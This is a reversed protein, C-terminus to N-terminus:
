GGSRRQSRVRESSRTRLVASQLITDKNNFCEIGQDHEPRTWCTSRTRETAELVLINQKYHNSDRNELTIEQALGELEHRGLGMENSSCQLVLLLPQSHPSCSSPPKSCPPSPFKTVGFGSRRTKFVIAWAM